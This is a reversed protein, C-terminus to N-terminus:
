SDTGVLSEDDRAAMEQKYNGRDESTRQPLTSIGAPDQHLNQLEDSTTRVKIISPKWWQDEHVGSLFVARFRVVDDRSCLSTSIM